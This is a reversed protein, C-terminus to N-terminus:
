PGSESRGLILRIFAVGERGTVLFVAVALIPLSPENGQADVYGQEILLAAGILRSVWGWFAATRRGPQTM